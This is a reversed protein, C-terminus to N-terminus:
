SDIGTRNVGVALTPQAGAIAGRRLREPRVPTCRRPPSSTAAGLPLRGQRGALARGADVLVLHKPVKYGALTPRPLADRSSTSRRADRRRRRSCSPPSGSAGASTPCASWSSTTCRRTPRLAAEVEEPFVKEGGTNICQSGRGLLQITGDAEVTAMDGTFCTACATSRSSRPRRRRRTTTPLRAPHPRTRAVRGIVGSGPSSATCTTTSCADHEADARSGRRPRRGRSAAARAAARGPRRDGVLRLRRRDITDPFLEALRAKLTPSMPAGGTGIAFLSSVDWRDPNPTGRRRRAAPRGRRRRRHDINVGEDEVRRGCRRGPRAAGPMCCSRAAPLLALVLSTWQAAAHMLPAVPCAASARDVIRDLLEGPTPSRGHLRMPDGGGICAFFVDEQRWVVGKPMGTTGGTYILYHDDGSRETPRRPDAVRGRARGRLEVRRGLALQRHADGDLRRGGARHADSRRRRCRERGATVVVPPVRARGLDADDFLYRLEDAVYRYNMNVPVARLKFAALM